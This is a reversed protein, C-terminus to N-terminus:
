SYLKLLNYIIYYGLPFLVIIQILRYMFESEKHVAKNLNENDLATVVIDYIAFLSLWVTMTIFLTEFKSMIKINKWELLEAM